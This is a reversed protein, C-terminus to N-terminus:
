APGVTPRSVRFAGQRTGVVVGVVLLAGYVVNIWEPRVSLTSLLSQMLFLTAAGFVAGTLGGRGGGLSTGGLAVATLGVLIYFTTTQAQSSQVIATLAIGGVAAFVGGIAYALLRTVTVNVGSSFAAVDNGGAAYLNRHYSTAALALWILVPIGILLLGGPIPGVMGTLDSTWNPPASVSETSVKENVGIIVFTMCLTAIIPLFRLVASLIGNILGVVLGIGLLVPVTEWVSDIGNPLLAEVLIVNCMVALPGVSLDLGGHGTLIAPTSAMAVLALPALAALQRPINDPDIFSSDAITNVVLLVVTLV